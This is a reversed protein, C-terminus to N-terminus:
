YQAYALHGSVQTAGSLNICLAQGTSSTKIVPSIGGSMAVGGNAAVAMAGTRDSPSTVCNAGTGQVFKVSLAATSVFAYSCVYIHRGSSLAVIETSGSAATSIGVFSDCATLGALLGGTAGSTIAGIFDARAPPASATAGSTDPRVNLSSATAQAVNLNTGSAIGQVALVTGAAPSGAADGGAIRLNAATAQVVTANLSSATAQAVNLNTGSAIGQVALVTGATPSGASDGGAIRLNTATAQTATVTGAITNADTAIAVRTTNATTAGSSGQIGSQGVIPNVAARATTVIGALTALNGGERAPDSPIKTNLASLTTQTAVDAITGLNATVTGGIQLTGSPNVKVNVFAGGGGTTEGTLVSQVLMAPDQGLPVDAIRTKRATPEGVRIITQLRFFAQASNTNTYVIRFYRARPSLNWQAGGNATLYSYLETHDWNMDDSSWQFSVGNTASDKDSIVNVTIAKINLVDDSTGSFVGDVGLTATSSNNSSVSDSAGAACGTICNVQLNNSGDVAAATGTTGYITMRGAKSTTDVTLNTADVGSRIIVSAEAYTALLVLLIALVLKRM